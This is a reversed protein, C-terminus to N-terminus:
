CNNDIIDAIRQTAVQEYDYGPEDITNYARSVKTYMRDTISAETADSMVDDWRLSYPPLGQARKLLACAKVETVVPAPAKTVTAAVTPPAPMSVSPLGTYTPTATVTITAPATSTSGETGCATFLTVVALATIALAKKM